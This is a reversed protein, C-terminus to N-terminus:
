SCYQLLLLVLLYYETSWEQEVEDDARTVEATVRLLRGSLQFGVSNSDCFSWGAEKGGETERVRKQKKPFVIIPILGGLYHFYLVGSHKAAQKRFISRRAPGPKGM